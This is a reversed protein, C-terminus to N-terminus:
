RDKWLEEDLLQLAPTPPPRRLVKDVTKRRGLIDEADVRVHTKPGSVQVRAQFTGDPAVLTEEGNVRVRSSPSARGHIKSVDAPKDDEPWVVSLLLQEPIPEPDSPAFGPAATSGKGQNVLVAKGQSEFRAAGKSAVVSVQGSPSMAVVFSAPGKNVTRTDLAKIELEEDDKSVNAQIRGGRLLGVSAKTKELKDLRLDMSGNLEIEVGGRRLLAKSGNHTRIVDESSLLHGARAVYWQGNQYAEVNGALTSVRFQGPETSLKRPALSPLGGPLESRPREFFFRSMLTAAVLIVAVLALAAIQLRPARRKGPPIM